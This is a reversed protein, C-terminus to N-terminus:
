KGKKGLAKNFSEPLFRCFHRSYIKNGEKYFDKDLNYKIGGKGGKIWGDFGELKPIDNLFNEFSKWRDDVFAEGFYGREDKKSYCRKMMNQWLQLAPKWYPIKKDVIGLYGEGYVTRDYPDKVKGKKANSIFVEASYGSDPFEIKIKDGKRKFAYFKKGSNNIFSEYCDEWSDREELLETPDFVKGEEVLGRRARCEYGSKKFRILYSEGRPALIEFKEGTIAKM